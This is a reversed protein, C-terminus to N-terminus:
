ELIELYFRNAKALETEYDGDKLVADRAREGIISLSSSRAYRMAKALDVPDIKSSFGNFGNVIWETNQPIDSAIVPIECSMCEMMATSSSDWSPISIGCDVSNFLEPMESYSRSDLWKVKSNLDPRSEVYDRVDQCEVGPKSMWLEVDLESLELAKVIVMPNYIPATARISLFRFGEHKVPKSTFMKTNIGFIIKEARSNPCLEKTAHVIHLSDGFVIDSHNMAYKVCLRKLKYKTDGYVDSGWASSVVHRCGSMAAYFGGSTLYHGHVIDPRLKYVIDRIPFVKRFYAFPGSTRHIEIVSDYASSDSVRTLSIMHVENGNKRFWESWRKIHISDGDGIMCLKM